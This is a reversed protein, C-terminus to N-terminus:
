VEPNKDLNFFSSSPSFSVLSTLENTLAPFSSPLPVCKIEVLQKICEEEGLEVIKRADLRGDSFRRAVDKVYKVKAWSLGASRVTEDSAECVDLPNPFPLSDRPTKEFDPKEPLRDPFFLRCFRYIIARAALWSVQQGLISSSLTRFLDLERITGRAVEEYTRLPINDLLPAFRVDTNILHRRAHDLDFSLVPYAITTAEKVEDRSLLAREEQEEEKAPEVKARKAKGNSVVPSTKEEAVQRKKNNGNIDVAAEEGAPKKRRSAASSSVSAKGGRFSQGLTAKQPPPPAAPEAAATSRSRLSVM